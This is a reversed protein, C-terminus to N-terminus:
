SAAIVIISDGSKFAIKEDKDPNLIVGFSRQSDRVQSTLRYGIAIENYRMGEKVVQYFDVPEGVAVFRSAPKLYVESGSSNFLDSFVQNILRNEAVQVMMLSILRDSVIFDDARAAVAVPQNRVDLMETVISYRYGNMDALDRLHLLTILTLADAQHPSLRDTAALLIIHNYQGLELGELFRRDTGDGPRYCVRLKKYELCGRELEAAAGEKDVVVLVDSGPTVYYDLENLIISGRWNWGLILFHEV